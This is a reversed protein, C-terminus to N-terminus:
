KKRKNKKSKKVLKKPKNLPLYQEFAQKIAEIKQKKSAETKRGTGIPVIQTNEPEVSNQQDLHKKDDSM